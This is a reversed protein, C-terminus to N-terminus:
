CPPHLAGAMAPIWDAGGALAPVGGEPINLVLGKNNSYTNGNTGKETIIFLHKTGKGSGSLFSFLPTEKKFETVSM